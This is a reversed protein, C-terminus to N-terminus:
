QWNTSSSLKGWNTTDTPLNKSDVTLGAPWLDGADDLAFGFSHPQGPTAGLKALPIKWEYTVPNPQNPPCRVLITPDPTTGTQWAGNVRSIGFEDGNSAFPDGYVAVIFEDGDFSPGGDPDFAFGAAAPMPPVVYALYLDGAAYKVYVADGMTLKFCAADSWEDAHLTGDV